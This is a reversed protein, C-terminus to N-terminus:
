TRLLEGMSDGCFPRDGTLMEFVVCGLSYLDSRHDCEAAGRCQEPSMYLPTGMVTGTSTHRLARGAEFLRAIGFDLLKVQEVPGGDGDRVLFINDPKVDRHVVGHEHAAMLGLAIRRALIM